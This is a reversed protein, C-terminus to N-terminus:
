KTSNQHYLLPIKTTSARIKLEFLFKRFAIKGKVKFKKCINKKHVKITSESIGLNSAIEKNSYGIVTLGLIKIEQNTLLLLLEKDSLLYELGIISNDLYNTENTIAIEQKHTILATKNM